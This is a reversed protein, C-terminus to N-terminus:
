DNQQSGVLIGIKEGLGVPTGLAFTEFNVPIQVIGDIEIEEGIAALMAKTNREARVPSEVVFVMGRGKVEFTSLSKISFM